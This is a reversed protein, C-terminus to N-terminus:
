PKPARYLRFGKGRLGLASVSSGSGSGSSFASLRFGVSWLRFGLGQVCVCLYMSAPVRAYVFHMKTYVCVCVCVCVCMWVCVRLYAPMSTTCRPVVRFGLGQVSFGLCPRAPVIHYVHHVQSDVVDV